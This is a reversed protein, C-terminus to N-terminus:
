IVAIYGNGCKDFESRFWSSVKFKTLINIKKVYTRDIFSILTPLTASLKEPARLKSAFTKIPKIPKLTYVDPTSIQQIAVYYWCDGFGLTINDLYSTLLELM